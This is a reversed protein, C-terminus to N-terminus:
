VNKSLLLPLLETMVTLKREVLCWGEGMDSNSSSIGAPLPGVSSLGQAGAMGVWHYRSLSHVANGELDHVPHPRQVPRPGVEPLDARPAGAGEKSEGLQLPPFDNLSPLEGPVAPLADM